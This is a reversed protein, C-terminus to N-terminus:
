GCDVIAINAEEDQCVVCLGDREVRPIAGPPPSPTSTSSGAGSAQAAAAEDRARKEEMLHHQLAIREAEEQEEVLRQRERERKENAILAEVKTVLEAKELINTANVHNSFLIGKLVGVGLSRIADPSM